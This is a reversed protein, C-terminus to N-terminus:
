YYGGPPAPLHMIADRNPLPRRTDIESSAAVVFHFLCQQAALKSLDSATAFIRMQVPWWFDSFRVHGGHSDFAAFPTDDDPFMREAAYGHQGAWKDAFNNARHLLRELSSPQQFQRAVNPLFDLLEHPEVQACWM